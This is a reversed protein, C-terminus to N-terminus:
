SQSNLYPILIKEEILAHKELDSSLQLIDFVLEMTEEPMQNGPLYKYVIQTLDSLKDILTEHSEEFGLSPHPQQHPSALLPFIEQEELRFHDEVEKQYDAYFHELVPGYQGGCRSAIHRLHLGIHPLREQLYYRHSAELYSALPSLNVGDLSPQYDDFSYVNCVLLFFDEPVGYAACVDSVSKEGFGLPIGFRPLMLILHHNEQILEALKM